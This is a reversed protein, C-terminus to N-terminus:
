KFFLCGYIADGPVRAERLSYHSHDYRPVVRIAIDMPGVHPGVPTSLVWTPGMNAGHVKNDPYSLPRLLPLPVFYAKTYM